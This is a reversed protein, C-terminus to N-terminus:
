PDVPPLVPLLGPPLQSPWARLGPLPTRYCRRSRVRVPLPLLVQPGNTLRTLPPRKGGSRLKLQM